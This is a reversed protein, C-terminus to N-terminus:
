EEKKTERNYKTWGNKGKAVRKGDKDLVYNGDERLHRVPFLVGNDSQGFTLKAYCKQCQMEPYKYEKKGDTVRRIKYRIETSGCKGCNAESFVEEASSINEFVDMETEGEVQILNNGSKRTLKIM